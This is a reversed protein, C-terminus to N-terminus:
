LFSFRWGQDQLRALPEIYPLPLLDSFTSLLHGVKIFTPRMKELDPELQEALNEESPTAVPAEVLAEELGANRVLESRGYKMFLAAIDKYRKLHEGSVSIGM